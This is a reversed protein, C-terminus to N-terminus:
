NEAIFMDREECFRDKLQCGREFVWVLVFEVTVVQDILM